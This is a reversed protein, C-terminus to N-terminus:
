AIELRSLQWVSRAHFVATNLEAASDFPYIIWLPGRTRLTLQQGDARFAVILGRHLFDEIPITATYDNVAVATVTRGQAGVATMLAPGPVGEFTVRHDHWPTSTTLRSTGLAELQPLDFRIEPSGGAAGILGSVTLVPRGASSAAATRPHLPGALAAAGAILIQRRGSPM